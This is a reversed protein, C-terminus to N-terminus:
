DKKAPVIFFDIKIREKINEFKNWPNNRMEEIIGKIRNEVKIFSDEKNLCSVIILPNKETFNKGFGHDGLAIEIAIKLENKTNDEINIFNEIVFGQPFKKIKAPNFNDVNNLFIIRANHFNKPEVKDIFEYKIEYGEKNLEEVVGQM